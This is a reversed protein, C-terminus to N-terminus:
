FKFSTHLKYKSICTISNVSCDLNDINLLYIKLFGFENM